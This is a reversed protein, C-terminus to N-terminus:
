GDQLQYHIGVGILSAIAEGVDVADIREASKYIVAGGPFGEISVDYSSYETGTDRNHVNYEIWIREVQSFPIIRERTILNFLRKTHIVSETTKDIITKKGAIEGM